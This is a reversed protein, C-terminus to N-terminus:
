HDYVSFDAPYQAAFFNGPDSRRLPWQLLFKINLHLQSRVDLLQGYTIPDNYYVENALVPKSTEGTADMESKLYSFTNFEDGYVDFGYIDPRVGVQDYISISQAFRQPATAYSFGITNHSGYKKVYDTWLQKAYQMSMGADLGGLELSLDYIVKVHLSAIENQVLDITSSIFSWNSSYRVKDWSTWQLPDSDGQTAFRLEILEFGQHDIDHLLAKLNAQQQPFLVGNGSNVVHTCVGSDQYGAIPMTYAFWLDLALRRQGNGYMVALQNRVIDPALHYTGIVPKVYKNWNDQTPTDLYSGMFWFGYNSGGREFVTDQDLINVLTDPKVTKTTSTTEKKCTTLYFGLMIIMIGVILNGPVHSKKM